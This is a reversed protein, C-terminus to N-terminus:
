SNCDKKQHNHLIMFKQIEHKSFKEMLELQKKAFKFSDCISM